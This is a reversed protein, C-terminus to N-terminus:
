VHTYTQNTIHIEGPIGESEYQNALWPTFGWLLYRPRQLGGIVAGLSDGTHIGIRLKVDLQLRKRFKAMEELMRMAFVVMTQASQAPTPPGGGLRGQNNGSGVGKPGGQDGGEDNDLESESESSSGAFLAKHAAQQSDSTIARSGRRDSGHASSRSDADTGDGDGADLEGDDGAVEEGGNGLERRRQQKQKEKISRVQHLLGGVVVLCDGITDVSFLSKDMRAHFASYIADLVVLLHEPRKLKGTLPTFGKIDAYLVTVEKLQEFVPKGQLIRKLYSRGPLVSVLVGRVENTKARALQRSRQTRRIVREAQVTLLWPGLLSVMAFGLLHLLVAAALDAIV